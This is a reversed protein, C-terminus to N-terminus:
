DGLNLEISYLCFGLTPPFAPSSWKDVVTLPSVTTLDGVFIRKEVYIDLLFNRNIM